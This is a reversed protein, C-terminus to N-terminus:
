HTTDDERQKRVAGAAQRGYSGHLSLQEKAKEGGWRRVNVGWSFEQPFRQRRQWGAGVTSTAGGKLSAGAERGSSGAGARRSRSQLEIPCHLETRQFSLSSRKKNHSPLM